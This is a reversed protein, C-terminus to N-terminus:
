LKWPQGKLSVDGWFTKIDKGAITGKEKGEVQFKVRKIKETQRATSTIAALLLEQTAKDEEFFLINRNFNIIALDNKIKVDLVKVDTPLVPIVNSNNPRGDFLTNLAAKVVNPEKPIEHTEVALADRDPYYITVEMYNEQASSKPLGEPEGLYDPEKVCGGLLISLALLLLVSISFYRM